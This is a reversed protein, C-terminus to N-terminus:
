TVVVCHENETTGFINFCIGMTMQQCMYEGYGDQNNYEGITTMMYIRWPEVDMSV